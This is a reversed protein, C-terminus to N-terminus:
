RATFMQQIKFAYPQYSAFDIAMFALASRFLSLRWRAAAESM